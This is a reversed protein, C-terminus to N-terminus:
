QSSSSEGKSLIPYKRMAEKFVAEVYSPLLVTSKSDDQVSPKEEDIATHCRAQVEPHTALSYIFWSLTHATTEHGADIVAAIFM